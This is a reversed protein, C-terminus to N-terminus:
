GGGEGGGGGGGGSERERPCIHLCFLLNVSIDKDQVVFYGGEGGERKRM